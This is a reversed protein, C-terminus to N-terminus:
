SDNDATAAADVWVPSMKHADELGRLLGRLYAMQGAHQNVEWILQRYLDALTLQGGLPGDVMTTALGADDVADLADFTAEWTAELYAYLVDTPPTFFADMEEATFGFGTDGRRAPSRDFREAWGDSDWLQDVGRARTQILLDHVRSVHWTLLGISMSDPAPRWLLDDTTLGDLSERTTTRYLELSDHIFDRLATSAM